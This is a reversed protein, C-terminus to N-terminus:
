LLPQVFDAIKQLQKEQKEQKEINVVMNLIEDRNQKFFDGKIDIVGAPNGDQTRQCAPCTVQKPKEPTKPWSWHGNRIQVGCHSCETAEPLKQNSAYVDHRAEKILRDRRQNITNNM